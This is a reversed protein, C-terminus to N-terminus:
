ENEESYTNNSRESYEIINKVTRHYIIWVDHLKDLNKNALYFAMPISTGKKIEVLMSYVVDSDLRDFSQNIYGLAYETYPSMIARVNEARELTFCTALFVVKANFLSYHNLNFASRIDPGTYDLSAYITEQSGHGSFYLFDGYLKVYGILNEVTVQKDLVQKSYGLCDLGAEFMDVDTNDLNDEVSLLLYNKAENAAYITQSVNHCIIDQVSYLDKNEPSCGILLYLILIRYTIKM